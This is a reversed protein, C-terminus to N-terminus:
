CMDVHGNLAHAPSVVGSSLLNNLYELFGEDKIEQDTFLFTIGKGQQGATRYLYKLDELLNTVNYSRPVSLSTSYASMNSCHKLEVTFLTDIIGNTNTYSSATFNRVSFSGTFLHEDQGQVSFIGDIEVGLNRM